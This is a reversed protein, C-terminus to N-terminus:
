ICKFYKENIDLYYNHKDIKKVLDFAQNIDNETLQFDDCKNILKEKIVIKKDHTRIFSRFTLFLLYVTILIILIIAFSM